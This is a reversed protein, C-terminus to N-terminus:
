STRPPRAVDWMSWTWGIDGGTTPVQVECIDGGWIESLRPPRFDLVIATRHTVAISEDGLPRTFLRTSNVDRALKQIVPMIFVAAGRRLDDVKM